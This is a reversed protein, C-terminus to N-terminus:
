ELQHLMATNKTGAMAYRLSCHYLSDRYPGVVRSIDPSPLRLDYIIFGRTECGVRVRASIAPDTAVYGQLCGNEVSERM